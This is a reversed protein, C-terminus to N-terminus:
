FFCRVTLLVELFVFIVVLDKLLGEDEVKLGYPSTKDVEEGLTRARWKREKGLDGCSM